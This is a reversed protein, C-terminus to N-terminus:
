SLRAAYGNIKVTGAESQAWEPGEMDGAPRPPGMGRGPAWPRSTDQVADM